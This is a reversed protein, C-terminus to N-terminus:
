SRGPGTASLSEIIPCAGRPNGADCEAILQRLTRRVLTLDRFRADVLALKKAALGRADRCHVGDNLRLLEAVEELTFGIDQARKIFRIREVTDPPYRRVGGQPRAPERVLGIRQYYRITEVNVGAQRAVTGITSAQTQM